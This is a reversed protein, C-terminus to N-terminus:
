YWFVKLFFCHWCSIIGFAFCTPDSINLFMSSFSWSDRWKRWLFQTESIWKNINGNCLSKNRSLFNVIQCFNAFFVSKWFRKSVIPKTLLAVVDPLGSTGSPALASAPSSKRVLNDFKYFLVINWWRKEKIKTLCWEFIGRNETLSSCLYFWVVDWNRPSCLLM